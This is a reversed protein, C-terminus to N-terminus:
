RIKIQSLSKEVRNLEEEKVFDAIDFDDSGLPAILGYKDCLYQFFAFNEWLRATIEKKDDIVCGKPAMSISFDTFEKLFNISDVSTSIILNEEVKDAATSELKRNAAEIYELFSGLLLAIPCEVAGRWVDNLRKINEMIYERLKSREERPKVHRQYVYEVIENHDLDGYREIIRDVKQLLKKNIHPIIESEVLRVGNPKLKYKVYVHDSTLCPERRKSILNNNALITSDLELDISYPGFQRKKFFYGSPLKGEAECL